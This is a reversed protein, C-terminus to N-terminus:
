STSVSRTETYNAIALLAAAYKMAFYPHNKWIDYYMKQVTGAYEAFVNQENLETTLATARLLIQSIDTLPAVVSTVTYTFGVDAAGFRTHLKNAVLPISSSLGNTFTIAATTVVQRPQLQTITVTDEATKQITWSYTTHGNSEDAAHEGLVYIPVSSDTVHTVNRTFVASTFDNRFPLYTIDTESGVSDALQTAHILQMLQRARYNLFLRDPTAGFITTHFRSLGTPLKRRIYTPAIYEEGPINLAYGDRGRNLLLTRIRNIM